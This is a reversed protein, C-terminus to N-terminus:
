PTSRMLAEHSPAVGPEAFFSLHRDDMLVRWVDIVAVQGRATADNPQPRV